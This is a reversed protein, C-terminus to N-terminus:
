FLIQLIIDIESTVALVFSHFFDYPEQDQNMVFHLHVKLKTKRLKIITHKNVINKCVANNVFMRLLLPSLEEIERSTFKITSSLTLGGVGGGYLRV